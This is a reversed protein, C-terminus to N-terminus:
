NFNIKRDKIKRTYGTSYIYCMLALFCAVLLRISYQWFSISVSIIASTVPGGYVYVGVILMSVLLLHRCDLCLILLMMSFEEQIGEVILKM